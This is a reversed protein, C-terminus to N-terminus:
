ICQMSYLCFWYFADESRLYAEPAHKPKLNRYKAPSSLIKHAQAPDNKKQFNLNKVVNKLSKTKESEILNRNHFKFIWFKLYKKSM